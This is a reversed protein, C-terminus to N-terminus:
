LQARIPSDQLRLLAQEQPGELGRVRAHVLTRGCLLVEFVCQDLQLQHHQGVPGDVVRQHIAPSPQHRRGEVRSAGLPGGTRALVLVQQGNQALWFHAQNILVALVVPLESVGQQAGELGFVELLELLLLFRAVASMVTVTPLLLLLLSCLCSSVSKTDSDDEVCGEGM